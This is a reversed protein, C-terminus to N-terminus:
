GIRVFAFIKAKKLLGLQAVQLQSCLHALVNSRYVLSSSAFVNQKSPLREVLQVVVAYLTPKEVIPIGVVSWGSPPTICSKLLIKNRGRGESTACEQM